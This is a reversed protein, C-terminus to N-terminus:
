SRIAQNIVDDLRGRSAKKADITQEHSDFVKVLAATILESRSVGLLRALIEIKGALERSCRITFACRPWPFRKRRRRLGTQQIRELETYYRKIQEKKTLRGMKNWEKSCINTIKGLFFLRERLQHVFYRKKIIHVLKKAPFVLPFGRTKGQM